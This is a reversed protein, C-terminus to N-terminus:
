VCFCAGEAELLKALGLKEDAVDFATNLNQVPASKQLKNYDLLDPRFNAANLSM